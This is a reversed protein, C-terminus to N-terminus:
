VRYRSVFSKCIILFIIVGPLSSANVFADATILFLFVHSRSAISNIFMALASYYFVLFPFGGLVFVLLLVFEFLGYDSVGRLGFFLNEVEVKEVLTSYALLRNNISSTAAECSEFPCYGTFVYLKSYLAITQKLLEPNMNILLAAIFLIIPVLVLPIKRKLLLVITIFIFYIISIRGGGLFLACIATLIYILKTNKYILFLCLISVCTSYTVPSDFLASPRGGLGLFTNKTSYLLYILNINLIRQAIVLIIIVSLIFLLYRQSETHHLKHDFSFITFILGKCLFPIFYNVFQVNSHNPVSLIIVLCAFFLMTVIKFASIKTSGVLNVLLVLLLKAYILPKFIFVFNPLLLIALNLHNRKM